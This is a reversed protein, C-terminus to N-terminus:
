YSSGGNWVALSVVSGSSALLTNYDYGRTMLVCVSTSLAAAGAWIAHRLGTQRLLGRFRGSEVFFFLEFREISKLTM